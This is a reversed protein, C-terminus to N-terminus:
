EEEKRSKRILNKLTNNERKTAELDFLLYKVHLIVYDLSDELSSPKKALSKRKAINSRTDEMLLHEIMEDVKQQCGEFEEETYENENAM